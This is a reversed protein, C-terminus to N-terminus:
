KLNVTLNREFILNKILSFFVETIKSLIFNNKLGRLVAWHDASLHWSPWSCLVSDSSDRGDCSEWRVVISGSGTRAGVLADNVFWTNSVWERGRGLSLNWSLLSCLRFSRIGLLRQIGGNEGGGRWLLLFLQESFAEVWANSYTSAEGTNKNGSKNDSKLFKVFSLIM